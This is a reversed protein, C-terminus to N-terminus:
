TGSKEGKPAGAMKARANALARELVVRRESTLAEDSELVDMWHAIAANYDEKFYDDMALMNLVTPKLEPDELLGELRKRAEVPLKGQHLFSQHYVWQLIYEREEPALLMAEELLAAGEAYQGLESYMGGLRALGKHSGKVQPRLEELATLVQALQLAKEQTLVLLRQSITRYAKVHVFDEYGGWYHYLAFVLGSFLIGIRWGAVRWCVLVGCSILLFGGLWLWPFDIM